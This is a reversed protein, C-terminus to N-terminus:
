SNKENKSEIEKIIKDYDSVKIQSTSGYNFRSLIEKVEEQSRNSQKSIAFLRTQQPRTIIHDQPAFPNPMQGSIPLPYPRGDNLPDRDEFDHAHPLPLKPDDEETDKAEETPINFMQLFCYKQAASMAKNTSKDSFDMAEGLTISNVSSGDEAWFTYMMKIFCHTTVRDYGNKDKSQHSTHKVELVTPSCFIKHKAFLPQLANYLDDIGRFRYNLQGQRDKAIPAVDSMVASIASYIKPSRNKTLAEPLDNLGFPDTNTKSM